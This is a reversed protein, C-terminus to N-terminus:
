DTLANECAKLIAQSSMTAGSIADIQLSQKDIIEAAIAEAKKGLGTQHETIQVGSIKGDAITVNVKAIVPKLTAEGLYTGDPLERPNVKAISVNKLMNKAYINTGLFILCAVALVTVLGTILKAM